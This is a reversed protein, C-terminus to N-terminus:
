NDLQGLLVNCDHNFINTEIDRDRDSVQPQLKVSEDPSMCDLPLRLPLNSRPAPPLAPGLAGM